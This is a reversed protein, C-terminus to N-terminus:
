GPPFLYVSHVPVPPGVALVIEAGPSLRIRAADRVRRGHVYARVPRRAGFGALRHRGLPRGWVAFLDAVTAPRDSDDVAVVGTPDATWLPYTCGGPGRGIGAPVPVVRGRAFVEVHIDFGHRGTVCTMGAVPLGARVAASAPPPRFLPGRGIPVPRPVVATEHPPSSTTGTSLLALLALLLNM